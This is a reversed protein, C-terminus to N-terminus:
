EELAREILGVIEALSEELSKESTDVLVSDEAPKLPAIERHSDNYDREEIDRLVEEFTTEIGKAEFDKLRRRARVEASAALFIKLEANPLVVTGIDRGDMIVSYKEALSRQTDLLFARVAGIASVDSAYKTVEPTRISDTVDQGNLIMRQAGDSYKMGIDIEPLLATVGAEDRSGVGKSLVYLGVTRYLAGTDVYILGLKEAALRALTSKGAGSPGDIAVDIHKMKGSEKDNEAKPVANAAAFATSWAIQLNFGGTYADVDIVEGAFYLGSCKKSAMTKPDIERTSVGGSTVIAEEIPGPSVATLEFSKFLSVLRRREEKTVSNVRKEPAIGSRRVLVPIMSRGALDSLANEFERNKYKEFDRLIRADLKEESLAPKLDIYLKYGNKEYERMHASASLVLPGSVGRHTFLLEGMDEFVAAGKKNEVRLKVNRLSFGAMEACEEEACCISVLSPVPPVITHGASEAFRYGDGTSGTLRYSIGGTAVIVSKASFRGATTDVGAVAGNEIVLGKAEATIRTVGGDKIYSRLANVIDAARDSEPFVRFGRETKLPVGRKEFFSMVASPPFANVASYLFRGNTTCNEIVTRAEANNTLNCRGKGTIGLKRGVKDNKELLLTRLGREGARGAAFLGAAGGGIVILDFDNTSRM